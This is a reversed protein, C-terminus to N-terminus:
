SKSVDEKGKQGELSKQFRTGKWPQKAKTRNQLTDMSGGLNEM